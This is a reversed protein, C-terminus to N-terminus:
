NQIPNSVLWIQYCQDVATRILEWWDGSSYSLDGMMSDIVSLWDGFQLGTSDGQLKPLEMTRLSETPNEGVTGLHNGNGGSNKTTGLKQAPFPPLVPPPPPSPNMMGFVSPETVKPPSPPPPGPPPPPIFPESGETATVYSCRSDMSGKDAGPSINQGVWFIHLCEKQSTYKHVYIHTYIHIYM